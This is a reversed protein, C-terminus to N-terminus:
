QRHRGRAFRPNDREPQDHKGGAHRDAQQGRAVPVRSRSRGVSHEQWWWLGDRLHKTVFQLQRRRLAGLEVRDNGGLSAHERQPAFVHALAEFLIRVTQRAVNSLNQRRRLLFLKVVDDGSHTGSEQLGVRRQTSRARSRDGLLFRRGEQDLVSLSATTDTVKSGPSDLGFRCAQVLQPVQRSVPKAIAGIQQRPVGAGAASVHHTV